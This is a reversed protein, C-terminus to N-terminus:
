FGFLDFSIQIEKKVRRKINQQTKLAEIEKEKEAILSMFIDKRECWISYSNNYLHRVEWQKILKEQLMVLEKYKKIM